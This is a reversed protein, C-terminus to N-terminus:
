NPNKKVQGAQGKKVQGEEEGSGIGLVFHRKQFSEFQITISTPVTCVQQSLRKIIEPVNNSVNPRFYKPKRSYFSTTALSKGRRIKFNEDFRVLLFFNIQPNKVMCFRNTMTGLRPFWDNTYNAQFIM